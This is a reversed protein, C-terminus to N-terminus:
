QCGTPLLNTFLETPTISVIRCAEKSKIFHIQGKPEVTFDVAAKVAQQKEYVTGAHEHKQGSETFVLNVRSM